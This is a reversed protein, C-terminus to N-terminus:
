LGAGAPVDADGTVSGTVGAAPVEVPEPRAPAAATKGNGNSRRRGAGAGIDSLPASVAEIPRRRRGPWAALLTGLAIIGGGIWIWMILPQVIVGITAPDGPQVPADVLTIYVDDLPTSRVAPTAIAAGGGTYQSIAPKYVKSGDIRVKAETAQRNPYSAQVTGLYEVRHGDFNITQGASVSKQTQHSYSRSAAFAVAIVVIGIHVIMGGNARGLLGRRGQRRTALVLQRGASGAAFAGLGFALLPNLGRAGFAVCGVITVVAVTLPWQIRKRLLEGSAKRWPLVPAIAMLFLLAVVIPMTMRDFYPEGVSIQKGNLAEALLPFVTGLLVVFAFAAFLLNNALFAGERSIPSDIAGPSRLRDGRWAILGVTVAVIIGFFALILPGIGSTTFAHVSELVGSRTLFTGLITLSFTALLLSLNWLRLMGRREQIMVSHLYATATLWPLFSANEVPDWAWFGGWGLVQYSWWAGLIIGVSLFGWAFLTWRRTEVLWGEDMRGTVLSAIAFAFPITFGVFGLYLMPPHFAVLPHNQLLPNPGPGDSPVAGSITRFPNAPGAMLLFFFGAVVYTVLTAWGVLPDGIRDRYKHAMAAIYGALILTWLIISGELASWMGTVLFLLPTERSSNNAVFTLSFDHTLLAREMAFGALVAGALILWTYSRGARLLNPRGKVLGVTLTVVGAISALLGLIVASQGIAANV